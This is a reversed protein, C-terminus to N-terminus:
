NRESAEGRGLGIKWWEQNPLHQLLVEIEGVTLDKYMVHGTKNNYLRIEVTSLMNRDIEKEDIEQTLTKKSM